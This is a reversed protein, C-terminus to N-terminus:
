MGTELNELIAFSWSHQIENVVAFSTDLFPQPYVGIVVLLAVLILLMSTERISPQIIKADSKAEGFFSRQVYMLSYISAFVTGFVAITIIVPSLTYVGFFMMIEGVFNGSGPIGLTAAAFFLACAPVYKMKGWLGGLEQMNLTKFREYLQGSIIFMGAASLAHAIMLIVVGQYALTSQSFIAIMVLGMHSVSTYAIMRKMDNQAYALWAGYFISILGLIMVLPAITASANPFIPICFRLYGYAATKLLLGNIDISGATPANAHADILWGHFPFVPMKVAFAIFFGLMIVFEALESDAYSAFTTQRLANYNFSWEGNALYYDVALALISILMLLGSAQTYILFKTAASFRAQNANPDEDKHGWIAIMFYMPLLMMEWFFFFLFLDIATFVGIVGACMWLLNMHFLGLSTHIEKWSALVSFIGLFTTLVVMLISLGDIALHFNIGFQPIWKAIYEFQWQSHTASTSQAFDGQQWLILSFVFVILMTILAIWRPANVSFRESVWCLLGGILPLFILWPLLM